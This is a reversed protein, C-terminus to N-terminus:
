LMHVVKHESTSSKDVPVEGPCPFSPPPAMPALPPPRELRLMELVEETSVRFKQSSRQQQQQQKTGAQSSHSSTAVAAGGNEARPPIVPM